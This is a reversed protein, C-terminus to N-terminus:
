QWRLVGRRWAYGLGLLALVALFLGLVGTFAHPLGSFAVAFPVVFALALAVVALVVLMLFSRIDPERDRGGLWRPRGAVAMALGLVLGPVAVCVVLFALIAAVAYPM